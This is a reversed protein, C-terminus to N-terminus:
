AEQLDPTKGQSEVRKRILDIAQNAAEIDAEIQERAFTDRPGLSDLDFSLSEVLSQLKPIGDADIVAHGCVDGDSKTMCGRVTLAQQWECFEAQACIGLTNRKLIAHAEGKRIEALSLIPTQSVIARKHEDGYASFFRDDDLATARDRNYSEAFLRAYEEADSKNTGQALPHDPDERVLLWYYKTYYETMKWSQHKAQFSLSDLSVVGSAAARVLVTRRLQHPTAVWDKGVAFKAEDLDPTLAKAELWDDNTIRVDAHRALPKFNIHQCVEGYYVHGKSLQSSFRDAGLSTELKQFLYDTLNPANRHAREYGDLVRELARVAPEVRPSAIWIANPNDQTKTTASRLIYATRGELEEKTFCGRQLALIEGKRACTGTAIVWAAAARILGLYRRLINQKKVNVWRELEAFLMPHQTARNLWTGNERREHRGRNAFAENVNDLENAVDLYGSLISDAAADMSQLIRNPIIPHQRSTLTEIDNLGSIQDQTLFTWGLDDRLALALRGLAALMVGGKTNCREHCFDIVVLPHRHLATLKIRREAAFAALGAILACQQRATGATLSRGHTLRLLALQKAARVTAEPGGPWTVTLRSSPRTRDTPFLWAPDNFRSLANGEFDYSVVPNDSGAISNVPADNVCELKLKLTM